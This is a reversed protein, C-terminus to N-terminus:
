TVCSPGAKPSNLWTDIYNLVFNGAPFFKEDHKDDSSPSLDVEVILDPAPDRELDIDDGPRVLPAILGPVSGDNMPRMTRLGQPTTPSVEQSTPGM